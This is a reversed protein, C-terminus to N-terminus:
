YAGQHPPFTPHVHKCLLTLVLCSPTSCSCQANDYRAGTGVLYTNTGAFAHTLMDLMLFLRMLHLSQGQLTFPGPNLGLLRTVLPSLQEFDPIAQTNCSFFVVTLVLQENRALDRM